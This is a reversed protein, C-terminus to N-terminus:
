SGKKENAAKMLIMVSSLTYLIFSGLMIATSTIICVVSVTSPISYWIIHLSMILYLIVTNLKGHWEASHVQETRRFVLLRLIFSIIEKVFMLILPMWMLPFRTLLCALLAAQTLKDAIPDIAKGFDTIMNYHRAIFGDVVDTASSLGIVFLTWGPSEVKCYLWIILPILAIRFFSLINPITWVQKREFKSRWDVQTKNGM